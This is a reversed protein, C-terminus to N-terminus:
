EKRYRYCQFGAAALPLGENWGLDACMMEALHEATYQPDDPVEAAIEDHVHFVIPYDAAEIAPMCDALQDAAVAQVGNECNHVILPRGGALVTFRHLPGCDILDYVVRTSAGSDVRPGSPLSPDDDQRRVGECCGDSDAVRSPDGLVPEIPHEQGPGVAHGLRLEEEPVRFRQEDAGFDPGERLDAGHGGLFERVEGLTQQCIHRESRLKELCPSDAAQVPGGYGEMGRVGPAQVDRAEDDEPRYVGEEHLRVIGRHRACTAEEDRLREDVERHRLRVPGGVDVEEWRQRPVAVGDPLRCHARLYGSSQSASKWGNATLVEHDPTMEIGFVRIVSRVGNCVAGGTGVWSEGDWVEDITSVDEIPIWSRSRTLVLTGRAICLKGGYTSLREWKRSYQNLGMYSLTGDKSVEPNPYCLVRGNPLGMRLWAGDRRFKLKRARYLKGPNLVAAKAADELEKWYSSIKPHAQRWLRKLADCVVFVKDDLGFQVKAKVEAVAAPDAAALADAYQQDLIEGRKPLAGTRRLMALLATHLVWERFSEAEAIVAAPLTPWAADAMKVLDIGYTAAGTLFAGVGGQYQLMLEMVKGIQRKDGKGVTEPDVNFARAYSLVYLDQGKRRPKGDEGTVWTDFDRFAQLKWEEGALWAAVRGEINSLDAVVLKKGEAAVITSRITCSALRVVDGHTLDATGGKLAEVGLDVYARIHHEKVQGKELGWWRAIADTDMRPMNGHQFLRHAWRGTRFAGRFQAGGRLRGDSSVGRLLTNYKSVSNMSAQLRIGILERVVDPLDPDKLRRELTDAQMDPLTVGHSELIWELLKDRQTAAGVQDETIEQTRHNLKAKAESVATVAARALDQDVAFGRQNIVLDLHWLEVQRGEYNWKPMKRHAERMVTIDRGAYRIFGAWEQPHTHKTARDTGFKKVFAEGQPKCFLNVYKKGETDKRKAEDINLAVGLKELAGPLGHCFAQVMTDRRRRLPISRGVGPLAKDLVVFDFLGGNHFWILTEPDDIASRLDVPMSQWGPGAGPCCPASRWVMAGSLDDEEEWHVTGDTLDWVKIQFDELAYSWLMVEAEEAYRHTGHKIPVRSFTELDDWHNRTV